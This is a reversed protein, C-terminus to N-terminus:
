DTRRASEILPFDIAVRLGPHNDLILLEAHHARAIAAVLSLGLGHGPRSRSAELRSFRRTLLPCDAEAVGAGDDAVSLRIINAQRHLALTIRTGPATHLQANDLLNILAQAILGRDGWVSRVVDIQCDLTRGGDAVVPAYSQGLDKVLSTLDVKAFSRRLDGAEIESLQLIAGFLAMIDDIQEIAHNLVSGDKGHAAAEELSNRLRSLPTRLDHAVDSSVQRLNDMLEGIRDLMMNLAGSVRDFEDDRTSIAIRQDLNGAIIAEAATSITGLRGRIYTGLLLAGLAGILLMIILAGGVISQMTRESTKLEDLDAAVVLREGNGLDIGYTRALDMGDAPDYFSIIQWGAKPRPAHLQGAVRQGDRAYLGYGLDNTARATERIAIINRLENPGEKGYESVLSSVESAIRSDMQARIAAQASLLVGVGLLIAALTFAASYVFSIRFAASRLV